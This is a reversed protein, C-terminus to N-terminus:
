GEKYTAVWWTNGGADIFAGQREYYPKDQVPALLRAGLTLAKAHVADADDVYAYVVGTWARVDPPLDGAEVVVTGDGISLEVHFSRPGFEFRELEVAGFVQQLFEPLDVPGHLYPRIAGRGHRIHTPNVSV